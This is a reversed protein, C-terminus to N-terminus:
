KARAEKVAARQEAALWRVANELVKLPEPRLYVGFTEHGPRFYFVRGRGIRWVCGSRFRQGADWREEFIVEDPPPVHFPEDYMETSPLDFKEPLGQAIPHKPRLVRVHSPKGDARYAPFCCNPLLVELVVEGNAGQRRRVSPTLPDNRRPPAYRLPPVRVVRATKREAPTLPALADAVARENMAEIFPTSWHASHLAILALKGQKVREVIRRGVEPKVERQRVHGWWILVDCKELVDDGLGQKPDDQRVSRVSLGPRTKLHAAIENGLFNKYAQKQQPQQEDWVVVRIPEPQVAPLALALATAAWSSAALSIFQDKGHPFGSEFYTQFPRSRSRVHWSGDTLQAALLYKVGRRYAPDTTALGGAQHLAVLATGTAYADAPLTDLQAWGGDPRQTKLLERGAAEVEKAAAGSRKLAWLRFVRDETDGAPTKALWGRLARLRQEIRGQQEATGFQQLARGALYSTTFPSAESPPRRSTTQWHDLDKNRLLLYEAVAATTQDPKWGGLELTWLAYGATDAQGGQGQGKLYSARNRDLFAAIFRLHKQVEEADVPFGRSRATTLALIPIAQNHCAFCTRQAMHGAGGKQILPLARAVAARVEAAAPAPEAAPLLHALGIWLAVAPLHPTKV